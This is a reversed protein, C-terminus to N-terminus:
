LRAEIRNGSAAKRVKEKVRSIIKEIGTKSLRIGQCSSIQAASLGHHFYLQFILKDRNPDGSDNQIAELSLAEIERALIEREVAYEVSPEQVYAYEKDSEDYRVAPSSFWHFRRKASAYRMSDRVASRTIVALYVLLDSETAGSFRKLAMCNNQVLRLIVNQFLDSEQNSDISSISDASGAKGNKYQRLTSRLFSYIKSTFRSLFESWLESNQPNFACLHILQLSDIKKPDSAEPGLDIMPM